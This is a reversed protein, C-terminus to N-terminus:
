APIFGERGLKAAANKKIEKDIRKEAKLAINAM